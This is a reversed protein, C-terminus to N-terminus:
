EIEGDEGAVITIGNAKVTKQAVENLEEFKPIRGVVNDALWNMKIIDENSLRPTHAEKILKHQSRLEGDFPNCIDNTITTKIGSLLKKTSYAINEDVYNVDIVGSTMGWWYNVASNGDSDADWADNLIKQVILGYYKGWNWKAFAINVVQDNENVRFLGFAKDSKTPSVFDPGSIVRIQNNFFDIKWQEENLCSWGLYIKAEPDIMAAGLAFANISAINGYVPYTSVYGIKHNKAQVAALAGLLFKAEYMRGYYTRVASHSLNVSCNLFKINPYKVAAKLAYEMHVPSTTIILGVGDAASEDVAAEFEEETDINQFSTTKVVNPFVEELELRGTEHSNIWRSVNADGIHIWAIKLPNKESYTTTKFLSDILPHFSKKQLQPEESFTIQNGNDAIRIEDRIQTLKKKVEDAGMDVLDQYKHFVIYLLFADSTSLHKVKGELSKYARSFKYYASKLDKITDEDWKGEFKQGLKEALEQYCGKESFLIDYIGTCRYFQLFEYYVVVEKDESPAPLIRTVDALITPMELYKMVSVRKNGELVYFKGMYEVVKIADQIGEKTQYNMLNVWKEGFETDPPLLPMFNSAFADQRGHTVTGVIQPLPIERTGVREERLLTRKEVIDDLAPLIPSKGESVDKQHERTGSKRAKIYDELATAM